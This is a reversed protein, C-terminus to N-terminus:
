AATASTMAARPSLEGALDDDVDGVRHVELGEVPEGDVGVARGGGLDGGRQRSEFTSLANLVLKAPVRAAPVTPARVVVTSIAPSSASAFDSSAPM